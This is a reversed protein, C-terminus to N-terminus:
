DVSTTVVSHLIYDGYQNFDVIGDDTVLHPYDDLSFSLRNFDVYCFCVYWDARHWIELQGKDDYVPHYTSLYEIAQAESPAQYLTVPDHRDYPEICLSVVFSEWLISTNNIKRRKLDVDVELGFSNIVVQYKGFQHHVEVIKHCVLSATHQILQQLKDPTTIPIAKLKTDLIRVLKYSCRLFLEYEEQTKNTPQKDYLINM